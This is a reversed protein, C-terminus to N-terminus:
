RWCAATTTTGSKNTASRVGSETITLTACDDDDRQGSTATATASYATPAAGMTSLSLTYQAPMSVGLGGPPATALESELAYRNNQLFFKEQAVQIRLLASKAESRNARLMQARYSSVAVAALISVIAVVTMLEMLTVGRNRSKRNM